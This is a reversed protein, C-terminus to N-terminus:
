RLVSSIIQKSPKQCRTSSLCECSNQIASRLPPLPYVGSILTQLPSSRAKSYVSLPLGNQRAAKISYSLGQQPIWRALIATHDGMSTDTFGSRRLHKTGPSQHHMIKEPM